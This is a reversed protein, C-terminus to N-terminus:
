SIFRIREVAQKNLSKNLQSILSEQKLQMQCAWTSNLCDVTLIKEKLAIPRTKNKFSEGMMACIEGDWKGCVENFELVQGLGLKRIAVPLIKNLATWM